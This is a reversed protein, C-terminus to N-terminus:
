GGFISWHPRHHNNPSNKKWVHLHQITLTPYQYETEDLSARESGTMEGVITVRTNSPFTAPDLFTENFALFRGNSTTRQQRPQQWENLPLQLIELRTGVNVSQAHLVAGGVLLWKGTHSDPNQIVQSFSLQKDIRSELAEPIILSSSTCAPIFALCSAFFLKFIRYQFM